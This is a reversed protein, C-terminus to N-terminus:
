ENSREETERDKPDFPKSSIFSQTGMLKLEPVVWKGAINIECHNESIELPPYNPMSEILEKLGKELNLYFIKLDKRKQKDQELKLDLAHHYEDYLANLEDPTMNRAKAIENLPFDLRTVAVIFEENPITIEPYEPQGRKRPLKM